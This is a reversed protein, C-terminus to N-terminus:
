PGIELTSTSFTGSKVPVIVGKKNPLGCTSAGKFTEFVSAAKFPTPKSYPGGELTGTVTSLESIESLPMLLKGKSTGEELPLWKVTLSTAITNPEVSASSLVSCNVAESTLLHATYTGSEPGFPGQCGTLSGKVTIKQVAATETLGPSLSIKGSNTCTEIAKGGKTAEGDSNPSTIEIPTSPASTGESDTNTITVQYTTHPEVPQLVASSFYPSVTTTLVPASSGVPTATVTSSKLLPATEPAVTWGVNMRLNEPPEDSLFISAAVNTPAAPPQLPPEGTLLYANTGENYVRDGHTDTAEKAELPGELAGYSRTEGFWTWIVSASGTYTTTGGGGGRGSGGCRTSMSVNGTPYGNTAFGRVYVTQQIGGCSHGLIHFADGENLFLRIPTAASAASALGMCILVSGAIGLVLKRM